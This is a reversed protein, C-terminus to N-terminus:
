SRAGRRLPVVPLVATAPRQERPLRSVDRRTQGIWPRLALLAVFAGIVSYVWLTFLGVVILTLGLATIAPLWSPRSLYILETPEPPQRASM